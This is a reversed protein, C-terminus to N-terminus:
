GLQLLWSFSRKFSAFNPQGDTYGILIEEGKLLKVFPPWHLVGIFGLQPAGNQSYFM